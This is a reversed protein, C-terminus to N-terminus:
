LDRKYIGFILGNYVKIEEILKWGLKKVLKISFNNRYPKHSIPAYLTKYKSKIADQTFKDSLNKGIGKNQYDKIIGLQDWFIFSSDKKLIHNIIEDKKFNLKKLKIDTYSSLFGIINGKEEAVYFFKNGKIRNKIEEETPTNYKVLGTKETTERPIILSLTIERIRKSDREQATRINMEQLIM